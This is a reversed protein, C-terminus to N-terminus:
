EGLLVAAYYTLKDREEETIWKNNLSSVQNKYAKLAGVKDNLFAKEANRLKQVLANQVGKKTVFKETLNILSPIDVGVSFSTFSDSKNGAEDIAHSSFNHIGLEFTYAEGEIDECNHNEVGSLNDTVNCKIAIEEDVMYVQQSNEYRIVPPTQDILGFDLLSGNVSNFGGLSWHEDYFSAPVNLETLPENILPGFSVKGLTDIEAALSLLELSLKNNFVMKTDNSFMNNIDYNPISKFEALDVFPIQIDVSNGLQFEVNQSTSTKVEIGDPTKETYTVAVPLPLNISFNPSFTIVQDLSSTNDLKIDMLTYDFSAVEVDIGGSLPVGMFEAVDMRLEVFSDEATGVLSQGDNMVSSQNVKMLPFKLKGDIGQVIPINLMTSETVVPTIKTKSKPINIPPFFDDGFDKIPTIVQYNGWANFGFDMDVYAKGTPASTTMKWGEALEWSSEITFIEEPKYKAKEPILLKVNIPYTINVKGADMQLHATVGFEGSIGGGISGGWTEGFADKTTDSHYSSEQFTKYPIIPFSENIDNFDKWLSQNETKFEITEVQEVSSEATTAFVISQQLVLPSCLVFIVLIRCFRRKFLFLFKGPM